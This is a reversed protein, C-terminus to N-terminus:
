IKEGSQISINLKEYNEELKNFNYETLLEENYVMQISSTILDKKEPYIVKIKYWIESLFEDNDFKINNNELIRKGLIKFKKLLENYKFELNEKVYIEKAFEKNNSEEYDVIIINEKNKHFLKNIFKYIKNFINNNFKVLEKSMKGEKLNKDETWMIMETISFTYLM